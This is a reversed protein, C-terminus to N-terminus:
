KKGTPMKKKEKALQRELKEIKDELAQIKIAQNLFNDAYMHDNQRLHLNKTELNKVKELLPRDEPSKLVYEGTQKGVKEVPEYGNRIAPTHFYDSLIQHKEQLEYINFKEGGLEAIITTARAQLQPDWDGRQAHFRQKEFLPLHEYEAHLRKMEDAQTDM